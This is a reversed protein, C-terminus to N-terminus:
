LCNPTCQYIQLMFSSRQREINDSNDNNHDCFLQVGTLSTHPSLLFLFTPTGKLTMLINDGDNDGGNDSLTVSCYCFGSRSYVRNGDVEAM